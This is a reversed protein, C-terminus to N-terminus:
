RFFVFREVLEVKSESRRSSVKELYNQLVDLHELFKDARKRYDEHKSGSTMRFLVERSIEDKPIEEVEKCIEMYKAKVGFGSPVYREVEEKRPFPKELVERLSRLYDLFEEGSEKECFELYKDRLKPWSYLLFLQTRRWGKRLSLKRIRWVETLCGNFNKDVVGILM